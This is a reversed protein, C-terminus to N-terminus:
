REAVISFSESRTGAVEIDFGAESLLARARDLDYRESRPPGSEGDGDASWDVIVARGGPTLVRCLEAVSQESASEHFTMTSFAGDFTATEFPLRRADATVPAVTEPIGREGYREHMAPQLDLAVVHGVFPAIEDTYFGTGSGVDLLRSDPGTPLWQLLEERSCFRFRTPEELRDIEAPDFTHFGM